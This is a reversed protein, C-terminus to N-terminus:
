SHPWVMAQAEEEEWNGMGRYAWGCDRLGVLQQQQQRQSM